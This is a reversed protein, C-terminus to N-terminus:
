WAIPLSFPRSHLLYEDGPRASGARADAGEAGASLGRGAKSFVPEALCRRSPSHRRDCTSCNLSRGVPRRATVHLFAGESTRGCRGRVVPVRLRPLPIAALGGSILASHSAIRRVNGRSKPRLLPCLDNPRQFVWWLEWGKQNPVAGADERGCRECKLVGGEPRKSIRYGTPVPNIAIKTGRAEVVLVGSL